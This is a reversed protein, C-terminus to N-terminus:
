LQILLWGDRTPVAAYRPFQIPTASPAADSPEAIDLRPDSHTPAPLQATTLVMRSGDPTSWTATMVVWGSTNPRAPQPQTIDALYATPQSPQIPRASRTQAGKRTAPLTAKLLTVHPAQASHFATQEFRAAIFPSHRQPPNVTAIAPAAHGNFAVLERCRSLETAGGLLAIAAIAMAFRAHAPNLRDSSRLISDVRRGLESQRGLAGLSLAGLPQFLGRRTMRHEAITTLCTAYDEPSQTRRLVADDCALEREFCLRREIWLLAPNLPFLVLALKQLLNMWDDARQLHGTEHLVIQDIEPATLKAFLWSPIVIKPAFFGIVGPRDLEDSTCLQVKRGATTLPAVELSVPTARKWLRHLKVAGIALSIARALSLLAWIALIAISYRNDLTWVATTPTASNPSHSALFDHALPLGAIVTFATAWIVFRASASLRPTFRLGLIVTAAIAIGQWISAALAGCATQAFAEIPSFAHLAAIGLTM